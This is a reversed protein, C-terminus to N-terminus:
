CRLQLLHGGESPVLSGVEQCIEINNGDSIGIESSLLGKNVLTRM